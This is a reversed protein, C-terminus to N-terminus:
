FFALLFDNDAKATRQRFQAPRHHVHYERLGTESVFAM